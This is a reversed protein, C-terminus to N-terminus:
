GRAAVVGTPELGFQLALADYVACADLRARARGGEAVVRGVPTAGVAVLGDATTTLPLPFAAALTELDVGATLAAALGLHDLLGHTVDVALAEREEAASQAARAARGFRGIILQGRGAAEKRALPQPM